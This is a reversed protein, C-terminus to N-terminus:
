AGGAQAYLDAAAALKEDCTTDFLSVLDQVALKRREEGAIDLVIRGQHFMLTRSGLELAQRMSHTVMVTTLGESEVIEQTLRLVFDQMRPDLAATHEDLLLIKTPRLTAMVLSVAQRQGGSLLGMPERLRSEMGLALRTVRERIESRRTQRLAPALGRRAGRAAALALNEEITLDECTGALPDQFVRSVFRARREVPWQTVNAGDIVIRGNTVSTDGSICNLLTSKGSGNSGIVTVFQGAPIELDIGQLAISELAGGLGFTVHVGEVRIM